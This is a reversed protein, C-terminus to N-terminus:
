AFAAGAASRVTCGPYESEAAREAASIAPSGGTGIASRNGVCLGGALTLKPFLRFSSALNTRLSKAFSFERVASKTYHSAQTPLNPADLGYLFLSGSLYGFQAMM